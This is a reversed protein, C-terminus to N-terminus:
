CDSVCPFNAFAATISRGFTRCSVHCSRNHKKFAGWIFSGKPEGRGIKLGVAAWSLNAATNRGLVQTEKWYTCSWMFHWQTAKLFEDKGLTFILPFVLVWINRQCLRTIDEQVVTVDPLVLLQFYCCSKWESFFFSLQVKIIMSWNVDLLFFSNNWVELFVKEVNNNSVFFFFFSGVEGVKGTPVPMLKHRSLGDVCTGRSFHM